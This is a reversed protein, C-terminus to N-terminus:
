AGGWFFLIQAGRDSSCGPPMRRFAEPHPLPVPFLASTSMKQSRPVRISKVVYASFSTRSRLVRVLLESCWSPFDVVRVSDKKYLENALSPGKDLKHQNGIDHFADDERVPEFSPMCHIPVSGRYQKDVFDKM